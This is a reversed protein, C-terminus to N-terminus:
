ATNYKEAKFYLSTKGSGQGGEVITWGENFKNLDLDIFRKNHIIPNEM